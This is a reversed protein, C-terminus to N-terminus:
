FDWCTEEKTNWLIKCIIYVSDKILTTLKKKQILLLTVIASRTNERYGFLCLSTYAFTHCKRNRRLKMYWLWAHKKDVEELYNIYREIAQSFGRKASKKLYHLSLGQSKSVGWGSNFVQHLTFLVYPHDQDAKKLHEYGLEDDMPKNHRGWIYCLALVFNDNFMINLDRQTPKEDGIRFYWDIALAHSQDRAKSFWMRANEDNREVGFSGSFYHFGVWFQADADGEEALKKLEVFAEDYRHQAALEKWVVVDRPTNHKIKKVGSEM